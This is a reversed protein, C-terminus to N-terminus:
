FNFTLNFNFNRNPMPRLAVNEYYTNFINNVILGLKYTGIHETKIRYTLGVNGVQYADLVRSNTYVEGNFLQQYYATIKKYNYAIAGSFNHFPVYILQRDKEKDRSDTYSYNGNLKFNKHAFELGFEVGKSQVRKKNVPSWIGSNDPLWQIMDQIDIIFINAKVTFKKYSFTQGLDLQYAVEPILELNGGPQWYLDNFTPTRFDKSANLNLIYNDTFKFQSDIGFVLPTKFESNFAKRLNIGIDLKSSFAHKYIASASITNTNPSEINTGEGKVSNYELLGFLRSANSLKYDLNYRALLTNAKGFSFSDADKNSFFKYREYLYALSVESTFKTNLYTWKLLSRSTDDKYNNISPAVLSGSLNRSGVFTQNYVKILHNDSILVGGSLNISSNNFAGNDNRENTELYAYDNASKQYHVDSSVSWKYTGAKLQYNYRQHEFSGFGLQIRNEFHTNFRLANNLHISGGIAGSGFNSSGGGSKIAVSDYGSLSLTNFDTQGNLKSNINIGNWIVATQSATTGRFAPSSVMGYGNEKFYIPSNFRLFETTNGTQQQLVSDNLVKVTSNSAYRKLRADSLLVDDLQLTDVQGVIVSTIAVVIFFLYHKLKM